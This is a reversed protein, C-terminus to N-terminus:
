GELGPWSARLERAYAGVSGGELGLADLFGTVVARYFAEGEEPGAPSGRHAAAASLANAVNSFAHALFEVREPDIEGVWLFRDDARAVKEWEDLFALFAEVVDPDLRVDAPGKGAAARGLVSRAYGIWALAGSSALPGVQVQV